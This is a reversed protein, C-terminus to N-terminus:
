IWIQRRSSIKNPLATMLMMRVGDRDHHHCGARVRLYAPVKEPPETNIGATEGLFDDCMKLFMQLFLQLIM